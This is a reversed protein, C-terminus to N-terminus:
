TASKRSTSRKPKLPAKTPRKKSTASGRSASRSDKVSRVPSRTRRATTQDVCTQIAHAVKAADDAKVNRPLWASIDALTADAGFVGAEILCARGQEDVPVGHVGFVMLLVRASVFSPIGQLSEVYVKAERKGLALARAFSVVHERHYLDNLTARLLNCRLAAAPYRAGIIEIMEPPLCVRFDNFDVVRSKIRDFAASAATSNSEWLLYAYVLAGVPDNGDPSPSRQTGGFKRVLANLKAASGNISTM